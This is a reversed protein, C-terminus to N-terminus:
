NQTAAQYAREWGEDTGDRMLAVHLTEALSRAQSNIRAGAAVPVARLGARRLLAARREARSVDNADVVSSVEVALWVEEAGPALRPRGRVLIDTLSLEVIEDETLKGELQEEAEIFPIVRARRLWRGFYAHAKDRFKIELTDGRVEAMQNVLRRVTEETRRQAEALEELRQETRRQAEALAELRQETIRQAEALAELRQDTRRQAEALEELRQETRRQAEALEELRQETRRQAEALAELRQEMIRQAEALAELRQETRRQAEALEELRQDTRRQAEALEQLARALEELRQDTRRQAEALEELRQETRRQAEALSRVIDPLALLEETLVLRRIESLWEPRTALLRTLDQLDNITFAM